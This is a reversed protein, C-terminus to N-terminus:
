IDLLRSEVLGQPNGDLQWLAATARHSIASEPSAWLEAAKLNQLWSRHSGALRVVGPLMPEWASTQLRSAFGNESVGCDLAQHRHLVGYQAEFLRACRENLERRSGVKMQVACCPAGPRLQPAM